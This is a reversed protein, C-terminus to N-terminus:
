SLEKLAASSVVKDLWDHMSVGQKRIAQYALSKTEPTVGELQGEYRTRYTGGREGPISFDFDADPEGEGVEFDILYFVGGIVWRLCVNRAEVPLHQLPVEAAFQPNTTTLVKSYYTNRLWPPMSEDGIVIKGGAKSVRVMEGISQKINSFEGIGGFSYVADFYGDPYPLHVANVLAYYAPVEIDALKERCVRLMPLSIDSLHLEGDYGLRGAILLSDRGTGAAIELVKSESTLQLQNIFANRCTGEDLQHTLFTLHLNNEYSEARDDYFAKAKRDKEHLEKPYRFDVIEDIVAYQNKKGRYIANDNSGGCTLPSKDQPDVYLMDTM